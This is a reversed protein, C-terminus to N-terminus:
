DNARDSQEKEILYLWAILTVGIFDISNQAQKRPNKQKPM